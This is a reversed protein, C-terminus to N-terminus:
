LVVQLYQHEGVVLHTEPILSLEETKVPLTTEQQTVETTWM